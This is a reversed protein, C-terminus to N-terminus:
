RIRHSAADPVRHVGGANCCLNVAAGRLKGVVRLHHQFPAVQGFVPLAVDQFVRISHEAPHRMIEGQGVKIVLRDRFHFPLGGLFLEVVHHPAQLKHGVRGGQHVGPPFQLLEGGAKDQRHVVRQFRNEGPHPLGGQDVLTAAAGAKGEGAQARLPVHDAGGPAHSGARDAENVGKVGGGVHYLLAAGAAAGVHTDQVDVMGVNETEDVGLLVAFMQNVEVDRHRDGLVKHPLYLLALVIVQDVGAGVLYGAPEVGPLYEVAQRCHGPLGAIRADDKQVPYVPVVGVRLQAIDLGGIRTALLWEEGKLGAVQPRKVHGTHHVVGAVVHLHVPAAQGPRDTGAYVQQVVDDVHVVVGDFFDLFHALLGPADAHANHAKGVQQNLQADAVVRFLGQFQAGLYHAPNLFLGVLRRHLQRFLAAGERSPLAADIVFGALNAPHAVGGRHGDGGGAGDADDGAGGATNLRQEGEGVDAVYHVVGPQHLAIGVKLRHGPVLAEVGRFQHLLQGLGAAETMKLALQVHRLPYLVNEAGRVVDGRLPVNPHLGSELFM